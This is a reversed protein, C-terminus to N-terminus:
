LKKKSVLTEESVQQFSSFGKSSSLETDTSKASFDTKDHAIDASREPLSTNESLPKRLTCSGTENFKEGCHMDMQSCGPEDSNLKNSYRFQRELSTLKADLVYQDYELVCVTDKLHSYKGEIMGIQDRLGGVHDVLTRITKVAASQVKSRVSLLSEVTVPHSAVQSSGGPSVDTYLPQLPTQSSLGDKNQNAKRWKEYHESEYGILSPSTFYHKKECYENQQPLETKVRIEQLHKYTSGRRSSVMSITSGKGSSSRRIFRSINSSCKVKPDLLDEQSSFVSGDTEPIGSSLLGDTMDSDDNLLDDSSSNGSKYKQLASRTIYLKKRRLPIVPCELLDEKSSYLSGDASTKRVPSRGYCRYSNSARVYSFRCPIEQPQDVSPPKLQRRSPRSLPLSFFRNRKNGDLSSGSEDKTLM